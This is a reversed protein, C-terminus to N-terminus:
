NTLFDEFKTFDESLCLSNPVKSCTDECSQKFEFNNDNGGCGSWQFPLCKEQVPEFAWRIYQATCDGYAPSLYCVDPRGYHNAFKAWPPPPVGFSPTGYAKWEEPFGNPYSGNAGFGGSSVNFALTMNNYIEMYYKWTQDSENLKWSGWSSINPLTNPDIREGNWSEYDWAIGPGTDNDKPGSENSGSAGGGGGRCALSPVVLSLFIIKM